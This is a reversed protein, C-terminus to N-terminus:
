FKLEGLVRICERTGVGGEQVCSFDNNHYLSNHAGIERGFTIIASRGVSFGM